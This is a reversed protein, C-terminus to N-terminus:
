IKNYLLQTENCLSYSKNPGSKLLIKEILLSRSFSIVIDMRKRYFISALGFLHVMKRKNSFKRTFFRDFFNLNLHDIYGKPIKTNSLKETNM